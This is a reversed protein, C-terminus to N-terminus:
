RWKGKQAQHVDLLRDASQDTAAAYGCTVPLRLALKLLFEALKPRDGFHRFDLKDAGDVGIKVVISVPRIITEHFRKLSDM